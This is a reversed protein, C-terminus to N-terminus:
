LRDVIRHAGPAGVGALRIAGITRTTLGCALNQRASVVRRLRALPAGGPLDDLGSSNFSEPAPLSGGCGRRPWDGTGPWRKRRFRSHKRPKRWRLAGFYRLESPRPSRGTSRRRSSPSSPTWPRIPSWSGGTPTSAHASSKPRPGGARSTAVRYARLAFSPVDRAVHNVYRQGHKGAGIVGIGIRSRWRGGATTRPERTATLRFATLVRRRLLEHRPATRSRWTRARSSDRDGRAAVREHMLLGWHGCDPVVVCGGAPTCTRRTRGYVPHPVPVIPDHDGFVALENAAAALRLLARRADRAPPDARRPACKSSIARSSGAWATGSSTSRASAPGRALADIAHGLRTALRPWDLRPAYEFHAVNLVGRAGLADRPAASIRAIASSATSWCSRLRIRAGDTSSAPREASRHRCGSPRRASAGSVESGLVRVSVM